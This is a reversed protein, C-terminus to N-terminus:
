FNDSFEDGDFESYWEGSDLAKLMEEFFGELICFRFFPLLCLDKQNMLIDETQLKGIEFYM